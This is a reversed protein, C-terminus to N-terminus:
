KKKHQESYYLGTGPIGVTTTRKGTSSITHKLGRPGLTISASKKGFNLRVGPLVKISKRFNLGM